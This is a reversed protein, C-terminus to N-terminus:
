EDDDFRELLLDSTGLLLLYRKKHYSVSIIKRSPDILKVEDIKIHSNKNNFSHLKELNFKKLILYLIGIIGTVLVLAGLSKLIAYIDM